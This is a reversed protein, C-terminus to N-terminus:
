KKDFIRFCERCENDRGATAWRYSIIQKLTEFDMQEMHTDLGNKQLEDDVDRKPVKWFGFNNLINRANSM